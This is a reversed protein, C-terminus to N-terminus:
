RLHLRRLVGSVFSRARAGISRYHAARILMQDYHPDAFLFPFHSIPFSMPRVPVRYRNGGALNTGHTANLGFGINEILSYRPVVSLGSNSAVAFHWQYDWTTFEGTYTRDFTRVRESYFPFQKHLGLRKFEPWSTMRLDYCDWARKWTAWGWQWGFHSFHYDAGSDYSGSLLNYGAVQMVNTTNRYRELMESCFHFFTADPLCDDELIIGADVTEFFWTIASSVSEGAGLHEERFLTHLSCDWDVAQVIKRVAECRVAEEANGPRPANAAVYLARPRAQRIAEFVRATTEPRRFTMLLVPTECPRDVTQM